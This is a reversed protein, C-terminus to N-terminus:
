PMEVWAPVDWVSADGGEAGEALREVISRYVNPWGAAVANGGMQKTGAIAFKGQSHAVFGNLLGAAVLPAMIGEVAAADVPMNGCVLGESPRLVRPGSGGPPPALTTPADGAASVNNTVARMFLSNIHPPRERPAPKAPVYGELRRQVYGATTVVDALDLIPAAARATGNGDMASGAPATYTLMFTKRSFSRWVLPRLRYLLTLFLGKDWLWDRHSMIAQHFNIFNGTRVAACIPLFIPGLDASEPRQLLVPSPFRGVLLNSPIWYTVILRRHKQFRVPCQRYAEEFCSHARLFHNCDFYFRGLYYLYTVRQSAPYLSLAPGMNSINTFM